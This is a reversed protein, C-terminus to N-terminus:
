MKTVQKSKKSSFYSMLIEDKPYYVKVAFGYSIRTSVTKNNPYVFSM